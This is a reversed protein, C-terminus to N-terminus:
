APAEWGPMALANRGLQDELWRLTSMNNPVQGGHWWQYSASGQAILMPLGDAAVRNSQRAQILFATNGSPSYVVDYAIGEGRIEFPFSEGHLGISTSNIVIAAQETAGSVQKNEWALLRFETKQYSEQVDHMLMEARDTSRNCIAISKVGLSVLGHILARSTGGAGFLVADSGTYDGQMGLLASKFGLWDTNIALIDNGVFKLTNVAGIIKADQDPRVFGMVHEKYPVTINLGKINTRRFGELVTGLSDSDNVHFPVYIGNNNLQQLFYNQFLPSLSHEVPNGIIGYVSTAGNIKM